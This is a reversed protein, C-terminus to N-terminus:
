LERLSKSENLLCKKIINNKDTDTINTFVALYENKKFHHKKTLNGTFPINNEMDPIFLKAQVSSLKLPYDCIFRVGGGGIDETLATFTKNEQEIVLRYNAKSRVYKRRQIRKEPKEYEVEFEYNQPESLIISSLLLIGLSTYISLRITEGEKLYPAFSAKTEPFVLLLRDNSIKKIYSFFQLIQGDEIELGVRVRQAVKISQKM